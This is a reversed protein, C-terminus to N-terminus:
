WGCVERCFALFAENNSHNKRQLDRRICMCAKFQHVERSPHRKKWFAWTTPVIEEGQKLVEDRSVFEFIGSKFLDQLEKDMANFWKDWTEKDMRLIEKFSLCDDANLKSALCFPHLGDPDM